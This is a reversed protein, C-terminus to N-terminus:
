IDAAYYTPFNPSVLLLEITDVSKLFLVKNVSATHGQPLWKIASFKMIRMKFISIHRLVLRLFVAYM